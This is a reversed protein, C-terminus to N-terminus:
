KTIKKGSRTKKKNQQKKLMQKFRFRLKSIPIATSSSIYPKKGMINHLRCVIHATCENAYTACKVISAVAACGCCVLRGLLFGSSSRIWKM